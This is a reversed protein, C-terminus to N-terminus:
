IICHRQLCLFESKSVFNRIFRLHFLQSYSICNSSAESERKLKVIQMGFAGMAADGVNRVVGM